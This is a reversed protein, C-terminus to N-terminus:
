PHLGHAVLHYHFLQTELFPRVSAQNATPAIAARLTDALAQMTSANFDALDDRMISGGANDLMHRPIVNLIKSALNFRMAHAGRGSPLPFAWRRWRKDSILCAHAPPMCLVTSTILDGQADFAENPRILDLHRDIVGRVNHM